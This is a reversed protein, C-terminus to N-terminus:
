AARSPFGADSTYALPLDHIDPFRVLLARDKNGTGAFCSTANKRSVFAVFLENIDIRRDSPDVDVDM